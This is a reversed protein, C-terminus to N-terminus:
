LNVSLDAIVGARQELGVTAALVGAQRLALVACSFALGALGLVVVARTIVHTDAALRRRVLQWALV